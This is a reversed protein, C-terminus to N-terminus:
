PNNGKLLDIVTQTTQPHVGFVYSGAKGFASVARTTASTSQSEKKSKLYDICASVLEMGTIIPGAAAGMQNFQDAISQTNPRKSKMMQVLTYAAESGGPLGGALDEFLAELAKYVFPENDPPTVIGSAAKIADRSSQAAQSFAAKAASEALYGFILFQMFNRGRHSGPTNLIRTGLQYEASKESYLTVAIKGPLGYNQGLFNQYMPDPGAHSRRAVYEAYQVELAEREADTKPTAFNNKDIGLARAQLDTLQGKDFSSELELRCMEAENLIASTYGWTQPAMASKRMARGIATGGGAAQTYEPLSGHQLVERIYPSREAWWARVIKPHAGMNAVAAPLFKGDVGQAIARMVLVRNLGANPLNLGLVGLVGRNKINMYTKDLWNSPDRYGIAKRLADQLNQVAVEGHTDTISKVLDKDFAMKSADAAWEAYGSYNAAFETQSKLVDRIGRIWLGAKGGTRETVHSTNVSASFHKTGWDGALISQNEDMMNKISDKSFDKSHLSDFRFYGAGEKGTEYPFPKSNKRVYVPAMESTHYKGAEMVADLYSSMAPDAKVMQEIKQFFEAPTGDVFQGRRGGLKVPLPNENTRKFRTTLNELGNEQTLIGAVTILQETTFEHSITTPKGTVSDTWPLDVTVRKTFWGEGHGPNDKAWKSIIDQTKQQIELNKNRAKDGRRVFLDYTSGDGFLKYILSEFSHLATGPKEAIWNIAKKVSQVVGSKELRTQAEHNDATTHGLEEQGAKIAIQKDQKLGNITVKNADIAVQKAAMANDHLVKLEEPTLDRYSKKGMDELM